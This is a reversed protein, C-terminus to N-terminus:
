TSGTAMVCRPLARHQAGRQIESAHLLSVPGSSVIIVMLRLGSGLQASTTDGASVRVLGRPPIRGCPVTSNPSLSVSSCGM